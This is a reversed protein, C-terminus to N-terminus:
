RLRVCNLEPPIKAPSDTYHNTTIKIDVLLTGDIEKINMLCFFLKKKSLERKGATIIM